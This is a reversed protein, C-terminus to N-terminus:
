VPEVDRVVFRAGTADQGDDPTGGEVSVSWDHARAIEGVIDLGFGTGDQRTSYGPDFVAERDAAPIGPGDDAVVFGNGEVPESVTVTVDEGAHERANRYLNEFLQQLRSDDALVTVDTDVVLGMDATDVNEWSRHAVANLDLPVPDEVSGGERAITLLDDILDDMRELADAAKEASQRVATPDDAERVAGVNGMAISLPNRLDHSVVSAFQDLRENQRKLQQEQEHRELAYRVARELVSEDINDKVLYDQAGRQIAEVATEDDNLGTLVVTAVPSLRTDAEIRDQLRNLTEIGNSEPLGLDLLVVDFSATALREAAASVSEVHTVVPRALAGGSLDRLYRDILTVDGPNDEVLLVEITETQNSM